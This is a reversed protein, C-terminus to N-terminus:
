EAGEGNTDPDNYRQIDRPDVGLRQGLFAVLVRSLEAAPVAGLVFGILLWHIASLESLM